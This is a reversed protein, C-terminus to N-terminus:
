SGRVLELSTGIDERLTDSIPASGAQEAAAQQGDESAVYEIFAAVTDAETQDEYGKCAVMYSILVIPYTGSATTDRALEIALDGEPRGEVRESNDLIAAAAEPTPGVFEGGVGVQAVSLDGVQSADAYGITGEGNTIAQVVGSTGQAAEGGAIPWTEVVGYTWADPAVADLYETFNETTGSDDSRNVPTITTSPLEVGENTEAIAPDDWTTIEQAMIGALAAPSLQLDEVGPLNYAIAIPSVYVPLDVAGDVCRSEAQTLEEDTLYADSGAFSVGGSLFQTRGSGSGVPDYNVTTGSETQFNVAWAQMAAQMSSAGAGVLTDALDGDATGTGTGTDTGTSGDTENTAGCSALVLALAAASTTALAARAARSTTSRM